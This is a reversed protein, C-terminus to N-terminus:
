VGGNEASLAFEENVSKVYAKLRRSDSMDLKSYIILRPKSGFIENSKPHRTSVPLRGDLVEIVLDVWKVIETLRQFATSPPRKKVGTSSKPQPKM